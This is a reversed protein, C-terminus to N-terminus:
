DLNERLKAGACHNFGCVNINSRIRSTVFMTPISAEYPPELDTADVDTDNNYNDNDDDQKFTMAAVYGTWLLQAELTSM